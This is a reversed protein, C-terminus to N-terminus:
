NYTYKSIAGFSSWLRRSFVDVRKMAVIGARFVKVEAHCLNGLDTALYLFCRLYVHTASSRLAQAISRQHLFRVLRSNFVVSVFTLLTAQNLGSLIPCGHLHLSPM